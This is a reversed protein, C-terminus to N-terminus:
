IVEQLVETIDKIQLAESDKLTLRSHRSNPLAIRVLLQWCRLGSRSRRSSDSTPSDKVRQLRWGFGAEGWGAVSVIRGADAMERLELGPIKKLVERPEDYIGNIDGWTVHTMIRLKREMSRLSNLDERTLLSFYINPSISWM